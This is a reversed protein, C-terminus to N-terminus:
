VLVPVMSRGLLGIWLDSVLGSVWQCLWPSTADENIRVLDDQGFEVDYSEFWLAWSM